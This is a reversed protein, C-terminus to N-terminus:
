YMDTPDIKKGSLGMQLVEIDQQRDFVKGPFLRKTIVRVGGFAVGLALAIVMFVGTGVFIKAITSTWPPDTLTQSPENWTVDTEYNVSKRLSKAFEESTPSLVISLLSGKREIIAMSKKNAAELASELHKWHQEALQPTPYEILLLVGSSRADKYQALMTEAGVKFGLENTLLCFEERELDHLASQFGLPGLAYRQTGSVMGYEPLFSRIPPLPTHDVHGELSKVLQRLDAESAVQQSEVQVVVNGTLLWLREKDVASNNAIFSPVMGPRLGNTYVEYASSPDRFSQAWVVISKDSSSYHCSREGQTEGAEALLQTAELKISCTGKTWNGFRDPLFPAQSSQASLCPSAALMLLVALIFYLKCM